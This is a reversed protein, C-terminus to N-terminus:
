QCAVKGGLYAGGLAGAITTATKGVGGGVLSGVVGGGVGGVVQGTTNTNTDCKRATHQRPASAQAAPAAAPQTVAVSEQQTTHRALYLSANATAVVLLVAGLALSTTKYNIMKEERQKQRVKKYKSHPYAKTESDRL